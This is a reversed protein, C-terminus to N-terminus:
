SLVAIEILLDHASKKPIKGGSVLKLTLHKLEKILQPADNGALIEGRIVAFREMDKNNEKRPIGLKGGIQCQHAIDAFYDKDDDSLEAYLKPSLQGTAVLDQLLEAFNKTIVKQPIRPNAALSPFKINLINKHLSPIHILYKGFQEYRPNEDPMIGRGGICQLGSGRRTGSRLTATRSPIGRAERIIMLLPAIRQPLPAGGVADPFYENIVRQLQPVNTQRGMARRYVDPWDGTVIEEDTLMRRPRRASPETAVQMPETTRQRRPTSTGQAPTEAARRQGRRDPRDPSVPRRRMRPPLRRAPGESIMPPLFAEDVADAVPLAEPADPIRVRRAMPLLPSGGRRQKKAPHALRIGARGKRKGLVSKPIDNAAMQEREALEKAAEQAKKKAETFKRMAKRLKEEAARRRQEAQRRAAETAATQEAERRLEAEEEAVRRRAEALEARREAEAARRRARELEMLQAQYRAEEEQQERRRAAERRRQEEEEEQARLPLRNIEDDPSDPPHDERLRALRRELDELPAVEAVPEPRLHDIASLLNGPSSGMSNSPTISAPTLTSATSADSSWITRVSASPTVSAPTPADLLSNLFAQYGPSGPQYGTRRRIEDGPDDDDDDNATYFSDPSDPFFFRQGRPPRGDDYPPPPPGGTSPGGVPGVPRGNKLVALDDSQLPIVIGTSNTKNLLEQYRRWYQHFYGPTLQAGGVANSFGKWHRNLLQLEQHSLGRAVEAAYHSPMISKLHDLAINFQAVRDEQQAELMQPSPLLPTINQRIQERALKFSTEAEKDVKIGSEISKKAQQQQRRLGALTQANGPRVSAILVSDGM